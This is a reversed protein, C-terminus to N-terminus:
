IRYGQAKLFYRTWCIELMFDDAGVLETETSSRNNLKQKTSSVITFGRGLSLGGGSHGRMNPHVAFSADVWWKLIGSGNASLILPLTRTGRIYRMMHVMKDCDDLDPARVRTTLFAVATCTDPRSRKTYYLTKEALNNFQVTKGHLFNKCYEDVKFINEPAESKKTGGGKLEAKEFDILVKELLDIIKIQVQGRVTYDLTMDLYKQVKGRRVAMKGSGDEFISEYKQRLWKIMWDTVKSRLHSLKCDDVHYFITIQQGDVINNAVCPDYPNIKFGIETLSKTFKCYYLLSAVM